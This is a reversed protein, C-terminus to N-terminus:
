MRVMEKTCNDLQEIHVATRVHILIHSQQFQDACRRGYWSSFHQLIHRHEIGAETPVHFSGTKQKLSYRMPIHGM